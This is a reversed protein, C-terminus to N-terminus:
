DGDSHNSVPILSHFLGEKDLKVVWLEHNQKGYIIWIFDNNVIFGGPFVGRWSGWYPKYIKGKFFDDGIIPTPSIQTMKFPPEKTFTAAGMFYHLMEKGGSAESAMRISSHFFTLYHEDVPFFQTGGRLDGWSWELPANTLAVTECSGTGLLPKFVLHPNLSYSLLLENEYILPTWNKERLSPDAGEFNVLRDKSSITFVNGKEKLKAVHVRFGGKSLAPDENDSYVMYLHGNGEILRADEARCSKLLIQAPSIQNFDEDLFVVGIESSNYSDKPNAINRFSMLLKGEWRIISPNFADPYEKLHIQKTELIYAMLTLPALCLIKFLYNM